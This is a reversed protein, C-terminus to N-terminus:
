VGVDVSVKNKMKCNMRRNKKEKECDSMPLYWGRHDDATAKKNAHNNIKSCCKKTNTTNRKSVPFHFHRAHPLNRM